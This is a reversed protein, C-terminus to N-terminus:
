ANSSTLEVLEALAEPTVKGQAVHTGSENALRALDGLVFAVVAQAKGSAAAVARDFWAALAHDDVLQTARKSDIGSRDVYRAYREYPTEVLKARVSEVYEATVDIPVLDPDPFYRYDHAQEKSRQSHTVGAAEDWGRTEQIVRGGG